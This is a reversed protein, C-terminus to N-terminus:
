ILQLIVKHCQQAMGGAFVPACHLYVHDPKMTMASYRVLSPCAQRGVIPDDGLFDDPRDKRYLDQLSTWGIINLSQDASYIPESSILIGGLLCVISMQIPALM